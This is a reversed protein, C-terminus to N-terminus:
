TLDHSLTQASAAARLIQQKNEWGDLDTGANPSRFVDIRYQYRVDSTADMYTQSYYTSNGTMAFVPSKINLQNGVVSPVAVVCAPGSSSGVARITSAGNWYVVCNHNINSSAAYNSVYAVSPDAISYFTNAPVDLLMQYFSNITYEARGAGVTATNYTPIVLSRHCICYSYNTTDITLTELDAAAVLDVRTTTYSPLTLGLDAVAWKDDSYTKWLEADPRLAGFVVAGGGGSINGIATVFDAPFALQASTGGRTRIANAVSTLDADLQASDVLKDVAM